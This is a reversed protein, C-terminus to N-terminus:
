SPSSNLERVRVSYPEARPTQERPLYVRPVSRSVYQSEVTQRYLYIGRLSRGVDHHSMDIDRTKGNTQKKVKGGERRRKGM